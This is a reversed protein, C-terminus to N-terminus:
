VVELTYKVKRSWPNNTQMDMLAGIAELAQDKDMLLPEPSFKIDPSESVHYFDKGARQSSRIKYQIPEDM